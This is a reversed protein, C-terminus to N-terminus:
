DEDDDDDDNDRNNRYCDSCLGRYSAVVETECIVCVKMLTVVITPVGNVLEINSSKVKTDSDLGNIQVQFSVDPSNSDCLSLNLNTTDM